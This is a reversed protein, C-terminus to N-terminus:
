RYYLGTLCTRRLYIRLFYCMLRTSLTSHLRMMRANLKRARRGEGGLYFFLFEFLAPSQDVVRQGDGLGTGADEPIDMNLQIYQM